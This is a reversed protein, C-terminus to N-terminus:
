ALGPVGTEKKRPDSPRLLVIKEIRGLVGTAPGMDSAALLTTSGDPLVQACRAGKAM